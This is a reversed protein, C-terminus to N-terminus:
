NKKAATGTAKLRKRMTALSVTAQKRRREMLKWFKPNTELVVSEWDTGEIGVLLAAPKGQRTIVVQHTQSADVCDRVKKQLDRVSITKM